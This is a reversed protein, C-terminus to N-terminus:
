TYIKVMAISFPTKSSILRGQRELRRSAGPEAPQSGRFQSVLEVRQWAVERATQGGAGIETQSAAKLFAVLRYSRGTQSM